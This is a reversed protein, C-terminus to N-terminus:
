HLVTLNNSNLYLQVWRNDVGKFAFRDIADLSVYGLYMSNVNETFIIKQTKETGDICSTTLTSNGLTCWCDDPCSQINCTTVNHLIDDEFPICVDATTRCSIDISVGKVSHIVIIGIICTLSLQICFSTSAM